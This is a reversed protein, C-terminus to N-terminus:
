TLFSQANSVFGVEKALEASSCLRRLAFDDVGRAGISMAFKRTSYAGLSTQVLMEERATKPVDYFQYVGARHFEIELTRSRSDYALSRLSSSNVPRRRMPTSGM